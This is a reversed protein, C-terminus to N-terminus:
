AVRKPWKAVIRLLQAFTPLRMSGPVESPLAGAGAQRKWKQILAKLRERAEASLRVVMEQRDEWDGERFRIVV